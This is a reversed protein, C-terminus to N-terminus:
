PLPAYPALRHMVLSMVDHRHAEIEYQRIRITTIGKSAMYQDRRKDREIASPLTHWYDGDVELAIAYSPLFFDLCYVGVQREQEFPVRLAELAERVMREISTEGHRARQCSRGCYKYYSRYGPVVFEEGCHQCTLTVMSEAMADRQAQVSCAKSCHKLCDFAPSVTFEKGCVLCSKQIQRQRM